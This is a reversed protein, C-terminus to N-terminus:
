SAAWQDPKIYWELDYTLASIIEDNEGDFTQSAGSEYLRLTQYYPVTNSNFAASAGLMAVRLWGRLKGHDQGTANRRTAVTIELQGNYHCYYRAGDTTRKAEQEAPNIGSSTMRVMARPTELNNEVSHLTRPTLVQEFPTGSIADLYTKTADEYQSEFDLLTANDPAAM